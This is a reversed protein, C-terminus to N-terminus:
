VIRRSAVELKSRITEFGVAIRDHMIQARPSDVKCLQDLYVTSGTFALLALARSLDDICDWDRDVAVRVGFADACAM